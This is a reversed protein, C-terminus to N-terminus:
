LLISPTRNSLLLPTQRPLDEESQLAALKVTSREGEDRCKRLHKSSPSPRPEFGVRGLEEWTFEQLGRPKCDISFNTHHRHKRLDPQKFASEESVVLLKAHIGPLGSSTPGRILELSLIM